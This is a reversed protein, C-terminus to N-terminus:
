WIEADCRMQSNKNKSLDFLDEYLNERITEISDRKPEGFLRNLSCNSRLFSIPFISFSYYGQVVLVIWYM